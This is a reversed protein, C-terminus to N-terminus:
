IGLEWNYNAVPVGSVASLVVHLMNSVPFARVEDQAVITYGDALGSTKGVKIGAVTAKVVLMIADDPVLLMKEANITLPSGNAAAKDQFSMGGGAQIANSDKDQPLRATVPLGREVM